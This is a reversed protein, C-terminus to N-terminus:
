AVVRVEVVPIVTAYNCARQLDELEQVANYEVGMKFGDEFGGYKAIPLGTRKFANVIDAQRINVIKAM